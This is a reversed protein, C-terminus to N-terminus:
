ADDHCRAISIQAALGVPAQEGARILIRRVGRSPSWASSSAASPISPAETPMATLWAPCTHSLSGAGLPPDGLGEQVVDGQRERGGVEAGLDQLNTRLRVNHVVWSM